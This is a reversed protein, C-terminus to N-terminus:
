RKPKYNSKKFIEDEKAQLLQPLSVDNNEMYSRVIQWGIWVGIRGPSLNDEGLYFKSFPATDIFRQNLKPNTNYLLDHEIFYKWIEEESNVAWQYKETTYGIKERDSIAPLYADLVYMKKGEYIIKDIFNRKTNVPLQEKIIANAVDVILHKKTNNQKIYIPYDNYFEHNAGLYADLSILLFENSYLVRNDYDINTLMTIVTPAYFNPNYFKVHKFLETLQKEESSFDGFQKQTEKFLAIEDENHIKNIWVSDHETPFLMPYQEKTKSLTASTTTYFDIDFRAVKTTININSVDVNLKDKQKKCSFFIISITFILVIKDRKLKNKLM